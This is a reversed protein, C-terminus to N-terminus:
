EKGLILDVAWCGRVHEGPERCHSLLEANDCGTEELADALIPLDAFRHEEYITRALGVAEATQWAPNASLSQFPYGIVERLLTCAIRRRRGWIAEIEVGAQERTMGRTDVAALLESQRREEPTPELIEFVELVGEAAGSASKGAAAAAAYGAVEEESNAVDPLSMTALAAKLAKQRVLGDAFREATEVVNRSREDTMLHWVRRCCGCAFLRLKRDSAKGRLFELMLYPDGCVQWEAETM